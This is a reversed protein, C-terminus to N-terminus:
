SCSAVRWRAAFVVGSCWAAAAAAVTTSTVVPTACSMPPFRSPSPCPSPPSRLLILVPTATRTAADGARTDREHITRRCRKGPWRSTRSSLPLAACVVVGVTRWMSGAWFQATECKGKLPGPVVGAQRAPGTASNRSGADAWSLSTSPVM